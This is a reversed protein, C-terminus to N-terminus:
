NEDVYSAKKGSVLVDCVKSDLNVLDGKIFPGILNGEMDAFSDINENFIIMKFELKSDQRGNMILSLEKDGEELAKVLNDFIKKEFDFMNEYDRKMIGTEAAVFVLQLLKKKRRLIIGKFLAISNELQKKSDAAGNSFLDSEGKTEERLKKLYESFDTLFNRDIQQLTESYKEKRLLEYLDNYTLM